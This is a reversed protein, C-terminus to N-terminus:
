QQVKFEFKVVVVCYVEDLGDVLWLVCVYVYLVVFLFDDFLGVGGYIQIVVDIVWQVVNLVVVKIQLVLSLVVKFGVIDLMWVVKLMFLCVQEIVMCLEVICEGNGGLEVLLWGFVVCEGVCCCFLIFVCEVVGIVWM